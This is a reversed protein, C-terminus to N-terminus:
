SKGLHPAPVCHSSLPLSVFPWHPAHAYGTPAWETKEAVREKSEKSKPQEKGEAIQAIDDKLLDIKAKAEADESDMKVGLPEEGEPTVGSPAAGNLPKEDVSTDEHKGVGNVRTDDSVGNTQPVAEDIKQTIERKAVVPTSPYNFRCKFNISVIASTTVRKEGAVALTLM